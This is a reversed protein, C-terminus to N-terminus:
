RGVTKHKLVGHRMGRRVCHLQQVASMYACVTSYRLKNLQLITQEVAKSM